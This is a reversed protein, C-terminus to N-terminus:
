APSNNPPPNLKRLADFVWENAVKESSPFLRTESQEPDRRTVICAASGNAEFYVSVRFGKAGQTYVVVAGKDWMSVAYPRPVERVVTHLFALAAKKAAPAPAPLGEERAEEELEEFDVLAERLFDQQQATLPVARVDAAREFAEAYGASPESVQPNPKTPM